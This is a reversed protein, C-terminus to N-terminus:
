NIEGYPLGNMLINSGTFIELYKEKSGCSGNVGKKKVIMVTLVKKSNGKYNESVM